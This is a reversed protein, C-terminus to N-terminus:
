KSPKISNCIWETVVASIVCTAILILARIRFYYAAFAIAPLLAIIVDIMVRRTSLPQSIHPSNSVNINTPM